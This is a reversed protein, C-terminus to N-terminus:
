EPFHCKELIIRFFCQVHRYFCSIIWKSSTERSILNLNLLHWVDVDFFKLLFLQSDSECKLFRRWRPTKFHNPAFPSLSNHSIIESSNFAQLDRELSHNQSVQGQHLGLSLLSGHSWEPFSHTVPLQPQITLQHRVGGPVGSHFPIVGGRGVLWNTLAFLHRFTRQTRYPCM